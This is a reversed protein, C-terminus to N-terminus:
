DGGKREALAKVEVAKEVVELTKAKTKTIVEGSFEVEENHQGSTIPSIVGGCTCVLFSDTTVAPYGKDPDQNDKHKDAPDHTGNDTIRTENWTDLWKEGAIMPMCALGRINGANSDAIPNGYDDYEPLQLLVRPPKPSRSSAAPSQCVGFSAINKDDGPICDKEHIMPSGTIYVGHCLPLNLKRSHTGYTCRLRAGRVLYARGFEFESTDFDPNEERFQEISDYNEDEAILAAILSDERMQDLTERASNELASMDDANLSVTTGETSLSGGEMLERGHQLRNFEATVREAAMQGLSLKASM